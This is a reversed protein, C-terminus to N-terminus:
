ESEFYFHLHKIKERKTHIYCFLYVNKKKVHQITIPTFLYKKKGETEMPHQKRENQKTQGTGPIRARAWVLYCASSRIWEM